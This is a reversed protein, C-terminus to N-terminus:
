YESLLTEKTEGEGSQVHNNIYNLFFFFSTKIWTQQGQETHIEVKCHLSSGLMFLQYLHESMIWVQRDSERRRHKKHRTVCTTHACGNLTWLWKFDTYYSHIKRVNYWLDHQESQELAYTGQQGDTGTKTALHCCITIETWVYTEETIDWKKRRYSCNSWLFTAM